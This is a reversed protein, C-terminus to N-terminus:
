RLDKWPKAAEQIHLFGLPHTGLVSVEKDCVCGM